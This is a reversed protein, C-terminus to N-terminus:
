TQNCTGFSAEAPHVMEDKWSQDRVPYGINPPVCGGDISLSDIDTKYSNSVFEIDAVGVTM